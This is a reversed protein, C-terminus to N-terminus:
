FEEPWDRLRAYPLNAEVGMGVWALGERFSKPADATLRIPAGKARPIELERAHLM